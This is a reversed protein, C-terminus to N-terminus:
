CRRRQQRMGRRNRWPRWPWTRRWTPPRPVSRGSTPRGRRTQGVRSGDCTAWPWAPRGRALMPVRRRSMSPRRRTGTARGGCCTAGASPRRRIPWIQRWQGAIARRPRRRGARRSRSHAWPRGPQQIARSASLPRPTPRSRRMLGAWRGIRAAWRWGPVPWAPLWVSPKVPRIWRRRPSVPPLRGARCRRCCGTAARGYGTCGSWSPWARSSRAKGGM